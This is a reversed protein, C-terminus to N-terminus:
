DSIWANQIGQWTVRVTPKSPPALKPRNSRRLYMKVWYDYFYELDQQTHELRGEATQYRVTVWRGQLSIGVQNAVTRHDLYCWAGRLLQSISYPDSMKSSDHRRSKGRLDFCEIDEPSFRLDVQGVTGTVNPRRFPGRLVESVFRSFSFKVHKIPTAKGLVRYSGTTIELEFASFGFKELAQGLARLQHAFSNADRGPADRSKVLVCDDEKVLIENGANQTKM